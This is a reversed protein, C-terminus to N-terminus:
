NHKYAFLAEESVDPVRMLLLAKVSDNSFVIESATNTILLLPM